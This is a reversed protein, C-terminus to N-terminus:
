TVKEQLTLPGAAVHTVNALVEERGGLAATPTCHSLLSARPYQLRSTGTGPLFLQPPNSKNLCITGESLELLKTDEDTFHPRM